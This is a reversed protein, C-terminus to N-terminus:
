LLGWRGEGARGRLEHPSKAHGPGFRPVEPYKEVDNNEKDRKKPAGRDEARATERTRTGRRERDQLFVHAISQREPSQNHGTHDRRLKMLNVCLKNEELCPSFCLLFSFCCSSLSRCCSFIHHPSFVIKSATGAWAGGGGQRTQM